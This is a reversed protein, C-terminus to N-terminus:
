GWALDSIDTRTALARGQRARVRGNLRHVLPIIESPKATAALHRFRRAEYPGLSRDLLREVGDLLAIKAETISEPDALDRSALARHVVDAVM